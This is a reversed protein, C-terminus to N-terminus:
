PGTGTLLYVTNASLAVIKSGSSNIGVGNVSGGLYTQWSFTGQGDFVIVRGDSTGAVFKTAGTNTALSVISTEPYSTQGIVTGQNAVVYVTGNATGVGSRTGLNSIAVDNVVGDTDLTWIKVGDLNMLYSQGSSDGGVARTGDSSVDIANAPQEAGEPTEVKWRILGDQNLSYVNRDSSGVVMRTADDSLGVESIVGNIAVSWMKLPKADLLYLASSETESGADDTFGALIRNGTSGLAVSAVSRNTVSQPAEAAGDYTWLLAGLETLLLVDGGSTGAAIRFGDDSIDVATVIEGAESIKHTWVIQSPAPTPGPIPTPTATPAPTPTITPEPTSTPVPEPTNTPAPEPTFTPAPTRTVVPTPVPTDSPTPQPTNTPAPEPTFTPAPTPTPTATPQPTNAPATADPAETPPAAIVVPTQTIPTDSGGCAVAAFASLLVILGIGLRVHKILTKLM